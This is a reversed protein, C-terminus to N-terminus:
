GASIVTQEFDEQGLIHPYGEDYIDKGLYQSLVALEGAVAGWGMHHQRVGIGVEFFRHLVHNFNQLTVAM